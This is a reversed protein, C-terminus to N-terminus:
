GPPLRPASAALGLRRALRAYTSLFHIWFPSLQGRIRATRLSHRFSDPGHFPALITVARGLECVSHADSGAIMPVGHEVALARAAQNDGAFICRANFVELFDLRDLIPILAQRGIAERRIRDLPHSAGVVGGQDRVLDITQQPSLGSPVEETLFYALLEGDTTLIEEGVIFRDPDMEHLRLAGAITNHDTVAVRDLERRRCVELFTELPILSDRSYLTHSHLECTLSPPGSGVAKSM